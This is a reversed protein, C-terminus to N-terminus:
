YATLGNSFAWEIGPMREQGVDSFWAGVHQAKCKDRYLFFCRTQKPSARYRTNHTCTCWYRCVRRLLVPSPDEPPLFFPTTHPTPWSRSPGDWKKMGNTSPGRFLRTHYTGEELYIHLEAGKKKNRCSCIFSMMMMLVCVGLSLSM